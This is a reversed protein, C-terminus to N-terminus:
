KSYFNTNEQFPQKGKEDFFSILNHSYFINIGYITYTTMGKKGDEVRLQWYFRSWMSMIELVREQPGLVREEQVGDDVDSIEFLAFPSTSQIRLSAVLKEELEKVTTLSDVSYLSYKGDVFYVRMTSEELRRTVEIEFDSFPERRPLLRCVRITQHMIKEAVIGIYNSTALNNVCHALLYPLFTEGPSAASICILLLQWVCENSESSPNATSQKCLQCFIETCLLESGKLLYDVLKKAHQISGKVSSRDKAYALISKFARLSLAYHMREDPDGANSKLLPSKITEKKWSM